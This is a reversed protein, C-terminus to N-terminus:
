TDLRDLIQAETVHFTPEVVRVDPAERRGIVEHVV